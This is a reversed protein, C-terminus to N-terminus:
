FDFFVNLCVCLTELAPPSVHGHYCVSLPSCAFVVKPSAVFLTALIECLNRHARHARPLRRDLVRRAWVLTFRDVCTDCAAHRDVLSQAVRQATQFCFLEHSGEFIEFKGQAYYVVLRLYAEGQACLAKESCTGQDARRATMDEWAPHDFSLLMGLYTDYVARGRRGSIIKWTQTVSEIRARSVEPPEVACEAPVASTAALFVSTAKDCKFICNLFGQPPPACTIMDNQLQMGGPDAILYQIVKGGRIAVKHVVQEEQGVAQAAAVAAEAKKVVKGPCLVRFVQLGVDHELRFRLTKAGASEFGKWRYLLALFVGGGCSLTVVEIMRARAKEETGGCTCVGRLCVHRFKQLHWKHNDHNAIYLEDAPTLDRAGRTQRLKRLADQRDNEMEPTWVNVLKFEFNAAVVKAITSDFETSTHSCEFVHGLRVLNNSQPGKLLPKTTLVGSHGGCAVSLMTPENDNNSGHQLRWVDLQDEELRVLCDMVGANDRVVVQVQQQPPGERRRMDGSVDFSSGSGSATIASWRKWRNHVTVATAEPLVQPPQAVETSRSVCYEDGIGRRMVLVTEAMNLVPVHTNRGKM